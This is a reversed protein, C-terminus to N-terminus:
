FSFQMGVNINNNVIVVSELVTIAILIPKRYEPCRDAAFFLLPTVTAFYNNVKATSPSKGLLFNNEHICNHHQATPGWNHKAAWTTQSYDIVLASGAAAGWLIEEDTWSRSQAYASNFALVLIIWSLFKLWMRM